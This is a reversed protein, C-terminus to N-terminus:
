TRDGAPNDARRALRDLAGGPTTTTTPTALVSEGLSWAGVLGLPVILLLWWPNRAAGSSSVPEVYRAVLGPVVTVTETGGSPAAPTAPRAPTVVPAPSAVVTGPSSPAVPTSPTPAPAPAAVETEVTYRIRPRLDESAEEDALSVLWNTSLDPDGYALNEAGLPRLLIGENALTTGTAGGTTWAQAAFTLDFVWTDTAADYAGATGILCDVDPVRTGELGANQADGGDWTEIAPCAEIGTVTEAVLATDGAVVDALVDVFAAPDQDSIQSIAALVAARFAPSEAAYGVGSPRMRLEFSTLREGEALTPLEFRLLSTYREQGGSMGVPLTGPQVPQVVEADPTEPVPLGDGLGLADAVQQVQEGCLEPAGALGAVLCATSPPFGDLLVPPLASSAPRTFYASREIAAVEQQESAAHPAAFGIVGLLAIASAAVAFRTRQTGM